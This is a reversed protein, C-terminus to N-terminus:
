VPINGFTSCEMIGCPVQALDILFRPSFKLSEALTAKEKNPLEDDWLLAHAIAAHPLRNLSFDSTQLRLRGILWREL